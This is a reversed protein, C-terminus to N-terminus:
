KKKLSSAVRQQNLWEDIELMAKTLHYNGDAYVEYDGGGGMASAFRITNAYFQWIDTWKKEISEDFLNTKGDAYGAKWIEQMINTTTLVDANTRAITNELRRWHGNVWSAGHCNLCAAQMAQRRKDREKEDIGSIWSVMKSKGTM